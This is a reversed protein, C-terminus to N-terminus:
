KVIVKVKAFKGNQTYAYVYCTGKSKGKIVGKSSVTAIKKNSTEYAMKRHRQVKLKKSAPVAKAKLKFTKGIKVTVKNKKAATTVKKDNGVKGGTTAVHVTKSTSIVKGNSDLAYVLFKYYTGKKVKKGAVKKYTLKRKTTTTLKKYKNKSGCKNGYIVYEKAGPVKKWVVQVSTKTIKGARAQLLMFKTGSPDDKTPPKIVPKPPLPRAVTVINSLSEIRAGRNSTRVAYVQYSKKGGPQIGTDTYGPKDTTGLLTLEGGPTGAYVEYKDAGDVAKWTLSAGNAAADWSGTLEPSAFAMASVTLLTSKGLCTVEIQNDGAALVKEPPDFTFMDKHHDNYSLYGTTVDGTAEDIFTVMLRLGAPDFADEDFFRTSPKDNVRIGMVKEFQVEQAPRGSSDCVWYGGRGNEEVYGDDPKSMWIGNTLVPKLTNLDLGSNSKSDTQAYFSGGSMSFSGACRLGPGNNSEAYFAGGTIKVDGSAFVAYRSVYECTSTAQITGGSLIIGGSVFVGNGTTATSTIQGILIGDTVKLTGDVWVGKTRATVSAGSITMDGRAFIGGTATATGGNGTFDKQTEINTSQMVANGSLTMSDRSFIYQDSTITGGSCSMSGESFIRQDSTITGGSCSISGQNHKVYVPGASNITGGEVNLERYIQVGEGSSANATITGGTMNLNGAHVGAASISGANMILTKDILINSDTSFDCGSFTLNGVQFMDYGSDPSSITISSGPEGELVLDYSRYEETSLDLLTIFDNTGFKNKGKVHIKLDHSAEIIWCYNNDREYTFGDLYLTTRDTSLKFGGATWGTISPSGSENAYHWQNDNYDSISTVCLAVNRSDAEARPACLFVVAMM